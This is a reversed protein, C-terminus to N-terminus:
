VGRALESTRLIQWVLEEFSIGAAKAAMPVLSQETMGPVTNVELLWPQGAADCMLDVRGWGAGGALQFAELALAQLAKEEAPALGCPCHYVTSAAQYKADYDYFEHPTELRIVPLARDGLLAITYESGSIWREAIVDSDFRAAVQFAQALEAASHVKAMGLSSGERSPKVMLPTGLEEILADWDCGAHLRAFEPTPLGVGRWILKTRVKDMSLASGLVGTGTYPVSMAELAGQLLGDEGGRGHVIIFVRDFEALAQVGQDRPDVATVDVGLSQLAALVRSGSRLSVDREAAWGGLALAVRGMRSVQEMAIQTMVDGEKAKGRGAVARKSEAGVVQAGDDNAARQM